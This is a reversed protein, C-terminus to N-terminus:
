FKGRLTVGFTRPEALYASFIQTGGPYRSAPFVTALSGTAPGSTSAQFPSNFAVQAYNTDFLNQAWFEIAWKQSPGRIGIRANAVFFGDQGKQPFLDSGTNYDSSLRGDIYFLGSLGNSGINPTWSASSTIVNKPANSLPSGPLLRLAPDLPLGQDNGILNKRYHTDSYTYGLTVQFNRAPNFTTELEVGQSIVGPQVQDSACTGTAASLDLDGGALSTKCSNINQVLFVSGNFTNLQFNTFEQHFLALNVSIPRSSYKFGIEYANNTEPAFRLGAALAQAGGLASFPLLPSKLASRDLNYGGAKYGHAYSAYGLLRPTFKYSLIATGTLQDEGFSTSISQGNLEATSNGQCALSIVGGTLSAPVTTAAAGTVYPLLLAQAQQCFTNNNAFNANLSKSENTYRLGLTLDLGRALSIIDHTFFAWNKEHQRYISATDGVDHVQSLLNLGNILVQAQNAGPGFVGSLVSDTIAGNTGARCGAQAPNRPIAPNIAALLRCSAFAGYQSGFTLNDRLTLDENGFYGGILWDVRDGFAKGKLRLEQSFTRFQRHGANPGPTRYLLDAYGYDTDSGQDNDYGRYATISTLHLSGFDYNIEGSFGWDTTKGAYSRGPSISVDRSFPNGLAAAPQGLSLLVPIIPNQTTLLNVNNANYTSDIFAAACCNESRHTYDGILRVSLDSSPQYLIQGRLFYRNRNNLKTNNVVDNLYGDRSVYVGDIRGAITETIPVNVNGDVRVYNFNGYSVSGGGGLHFDPQKSYISIIGASANRGFLTGQPGRLVEVRDIDGLENLGIGSRSRYVGDVFVAVSSELGPNDGVTGIGRLRASGNAENGTSSVLLSPAVQNLQRIDNAGSRQLSQENVVSVAIPVDALVQARGQATVVIEPGLSRDENSTSSQDASQTEGTAPKAPTGDAALASGPMALGLALVSFASAALLRSTKM